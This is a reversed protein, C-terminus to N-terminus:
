EVENKADKILMLITELEGGDCWLARCSDNSCRDLVVQTLSSHITKGMLQQCYPCHIEPFADRTKLPGTQHDRWTKAKQVDRPDFNGPDRVILRDLIGAHLLYGGCFGCKEVPVGEMTQEVLSVRCRPCKEDTVSGQVQQQFLPLLLPMESAKKVDQSGAPCVWTGPTLSGIALLQTGNYPGVWQNNMYAMFAQEGQGSHNAEASAKTQNENAEQEDLRQLTKLDSKAWNLLKGLRKDVPPHTSFLTAMFGEQEALESAQPDLIFVASYAPASDGRFRHSIKYLSEALSLPDKCIAVGDADALYERERSIAMGILKTLLFGFGSVAWLAMIIFLAGGSGRGSSVNRSGKMMEGLAAHIGGFVSFLFTATSVLRSDEHILHAAEHAIVSSLEQSTLKSLLGETAGIACNGKGDQLSFANCGPTDIVVPLIGHIGTAAEAESVQRIFEQHYQDKPDTNKAGIAELMGSLTKARVFAFHFVAVLAAIGTAWLSITGFPISKWIHIWLAFGFAGAFVMLNAFFVYLFVLLIFLLVTARRTRAKAEFVTEEPLKYFM